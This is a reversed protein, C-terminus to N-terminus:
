VAILGLDDLRRAARSAWVTADRVIVVGEQELRDVANAVVPSLASRTKLTAKHGAGSM